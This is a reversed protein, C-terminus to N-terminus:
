VVADRGKSEAAVIIECIGLFLVQLGVSVPIYKSFNYSNM